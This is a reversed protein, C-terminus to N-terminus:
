DKRKEYEKRLRKLKALQAGTFGEPLVIPEKDPPYFKERKRNMRRTTAAIASLEQQKMRKIKMSEPMPIVVHPVDKQKM